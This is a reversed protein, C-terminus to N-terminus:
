MLIFTLPSKSFISNPYEKSIRCFELLFVRVGLNRVLALYM